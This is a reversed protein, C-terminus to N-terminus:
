EMAKICGETECKASCHGNSAISFRVQRLCLPCKTTGAKSGALQAMQKVIAFGYLLLELRSREFTERREQEPDDKWLPTEPTARPLQGSGRCVQRCPKPFDHTPIVGAKLATFAEGCHPCSAKPKEIATM